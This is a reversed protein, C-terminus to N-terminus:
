KEIGTRSEVGNAFYHKVERMETVLDAMDILEQPADRGTLIIEMSSPKMSLIGKLEDLQVLRNHMAGLIEDLILIDCENRRVVGKVFEVAQEVEQKLEAKEDDNLLWFFNRKKEFRFIKFYPELRPAAILEGTEFSKLFQVMYVKCERGVARLAQGLAATTKGKGNGTYIQIYGNQLKM